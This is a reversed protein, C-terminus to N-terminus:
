GDKIVADSHLLLSSCSNNVNLYVYMTIKFFNFNDM